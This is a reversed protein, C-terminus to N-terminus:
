KAYRKLWDLGKMEMIKNIDTPWFKLGYGFFIGRHNYINPQLMEVYRSETYGFHGEVAFFISSAVADAIQLGMRQRMPLAKIQKINIVNWDIRVRFYDTNDKLYSLYRRLEEYSMSSRNSFIIEVTGDGQDHTTKQDRCYWSVRELLFRAAYFYLRRERQFSEPEKIDRKNTIVNITKLKTENIKGIYPVRQHHKLYRFHLPKKPDKKLLARVDDVLKVTEFDVAKRIVVASLVFWESSGSDFLFGEDGSEDIYCVFTPTAM